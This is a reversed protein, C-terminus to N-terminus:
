KAECTPYNYEIQLYEKPIHFVGDNSIEYGLTEAKHGDILVSDKIISEERLQKKNM